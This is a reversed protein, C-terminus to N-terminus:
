GLRRYIFVGLGICLLGALLLSWAVDAFDKSFFGCVGAVTLITGPVIFKVVVMFRHYWDKAPPPMYPRSPIVPAPRDGGERAPVALSGGPSQRAAKPYGDPFPLDPHYVHWPIGRTTLEEHVIRALERSHNVSNSSWLYEAGDDRLLRFGDSRAIMADPGAAVVSADVHDQMGWDIRDWPFTRLRNGTVCVLGDPYVRVRSRAMRRVWFLLWVGGAVFPTGLIAFMLIAGWCVGKKAYFPIVFNQTAAERFLFGLMTIPAGIALVALIVGAALSEIKPRYERLPPGLRDLVPWPDTTSEYESAASLDM